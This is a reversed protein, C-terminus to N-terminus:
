REPDAITGEKVSNRFQRIFGSMERCHPSCYPSRESTAPEGCNPCTSFDIPVLDFECDVFAMAREVIPRLVARIQDDPSESAGMHPLQALLDSLRISWTDAVSSM